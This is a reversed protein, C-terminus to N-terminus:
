IYLIKTPIKVLVKGGTPNKIVALEAKGDFISDLRKRLTDLGHGTKLKSESFGPGNDCVEIKLNGDINYASVHIETKDSRKSVVHKIVNEVLTQLTFSPLKETKLSSPVDFNYDLKDVFRAAEIELYDTTIKLEEELSVLSGIRFDLSYRLLASLKEVMNEAKVPNEKILAAISNMTNFLFHPHIRSELSAFQAQVALSKAKVEALEKQRLLEKTKQLRDQYRVYFYAGLGFIYSITLSFVKNQNSLVEFDTDYFSLFSDTLVLGVMTSVYIVPLIIVIRQLLYYNQIKPAVLVIGTFVSFSIFVTHTLSLFFTNFIFGDSVSRLSFVSFASAATAFLLVKWARITFRNNNM